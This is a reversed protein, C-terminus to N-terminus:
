LCFPRNENRARQEHRLRWTPTPQEGAPKGLKSSYRARKRTELTPGNRRRRYYRGSRNALRAAPMSPTPLASRRNRPKGRKQKRRARKEVILGESLIPSGSTAIAPRPLRGAITSWAMPLPAEPRGRASTVEIMSGGGDADSDFPVGMLIGPAVTNGFARCATYKIQQDPRLAWLTSNRPFCSRLMFPEMERPEREGKVKARVVVGLGEEDEPKWDPVAYDHGKASKAIRHKGRIKNWDGVLEYTVPGELRGSNELIAQVLKGEYGVRGGPTQYTSQMVAFPDLKWTIARTVVAFCAATKSLLHPPTFGEAEAMYKAIQKCRDFLRDNFMLALGPSMGALSIGYTAEAEDNITRPLTNM